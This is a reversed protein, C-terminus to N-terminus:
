ASAAAIFREAVITTPKSWALIQAIIEERTM